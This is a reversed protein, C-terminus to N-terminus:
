AVEKRLPGDDSRRAHAEADLLDATSASASPSQVVIPRIRLVRGTHCAYCHAAGLVARGHVQELGPLTFLRACGSLNHSLVLPM